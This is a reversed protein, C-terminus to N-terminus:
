TSVPETFWDARSAPVWDVGLVYHRDAPAEAAAPPDGAPLDAALAPTVLGLAVLSAAAFLM